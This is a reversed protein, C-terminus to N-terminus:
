KKFRDPGGCSQLSYAYGFVQGNGGEYAGPLVSRFAVRDYVFTMRRLIVRISDYAVEAESEKARAPDNDGFVISHLRISSTKKNQRISFSTSPYLTVRTSTGSIGLRRRHRGKEPPITQLRLIHHLLRRLDRPRLRGFSVIHTSRNSYSRLLPKPTTVLCASNTWRRTGLGSDNCSTSAWDDKADLSSGKGLYGEKPITLTRM